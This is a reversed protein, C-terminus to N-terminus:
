IQSIHILQFFCQCSVLFFISSKIFLVKAPLLSFFVFFLIPRDNKKWSIAHCLCPITQYALQLPYTSSPIPCPDSHLLFSQLDPLRRAQLRTFMIFLTCYDQVIYIFFLFHCMPLSFLTTYNISFISFTNAHCHLLYYLLSPFPSLIASEDDTRATCFWLLTPTAHGANQLDYPRAVNYSRTHNPFHEM